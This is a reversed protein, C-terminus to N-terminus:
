ESGKARGTLEIALFRMEPPSSGPNVEVFKMHSHSRLRCLSHTGLM